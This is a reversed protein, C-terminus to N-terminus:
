AAFSRMAVNILAERVIPRNAHLSNWAKWDRDSKFWRRDRRKWKLVGTRPNYDLLERVIAQTLKRPKM